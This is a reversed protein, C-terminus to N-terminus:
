APRVFGIDDAIVTTPGIPLMEATAGGVKVFQLKEKWVKRVLDEFAITTLRDGPCRRYGFGFPAFGAYDCV